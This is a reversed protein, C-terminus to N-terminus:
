FLWNHRLLTKLEPRQAGYYEAIAKIDAASLQGAFTAMVPNKRDGKQYEILARALYDAHQGSL